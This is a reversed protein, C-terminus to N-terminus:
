SVGKAEEGTRLEANELSSGLDARFLCAAVKLGPIICGMSVALRFRTRDSEM